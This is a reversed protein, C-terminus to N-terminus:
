KQSLVAGIGRSSADTELVFDKEFSPYCLVPADTLHSKLEEFARQCDVTREFQAGKRTLNHLPQAVRSFM